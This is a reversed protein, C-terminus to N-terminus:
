QRRFYVVEDTSGKSTASFGWSEKSMTFEASGLVLRDGKAVFGTVRSDNATGTVGGDKAIDIEFEANAKPSFGRFRGIAWDPAAANDAAPAKDRSALVAALIAVGAVAGIAIAGGKGIGDHGVRFEARCGDEVWVHHRDYGWNRWLRCRDHSYERVIRVEGDTDIRCERYRGRRDSECRITRDDARAPLAPVVLVGVLMASVMRRVSM